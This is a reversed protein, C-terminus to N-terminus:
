GPFATKHCSSPKHIHTLEFQTDSSHQTSYQGTIYFSHRNIDLFFVVFGGLGLEPESIVGEPVSQVIQPGKKNDFNCFVCGKLPFRQIYKKIRNKNDLPSQQFEVSTSNEYVSFPNDYIDQTSTEM